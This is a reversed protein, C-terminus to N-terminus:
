QPPHSHCCTGCKQGGKDQSSSKRGNIGRLNSQFCKNRSHHSKQIAHVETSLLTEMQVTSEVTKALQLIDTLTDMTKMKEILQDKVTENTNNILFLFKVMESKNALSCDDAVDHLKSM